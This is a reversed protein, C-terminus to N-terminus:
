NLNAGTDRCSNNRHNKDIESKTKQFESIWFQCTEMRKKQVEVASEAKIRNATAFRQQDAQYNAQQRAIEADRAAKNRNEAEQRQTNIKAQADVKKQMEQTVYQLYEAAVKWEILDSILRACTLAIFITIGLAWYNIREM